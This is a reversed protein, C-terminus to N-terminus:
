DKDHTQILFDTSTLDVLALSVYRSVISYACASTHGKAVMFKNGSRYQDTKSSKINLIFHDDHFTIDNCKLNSVEDFRLFGTYCMLIMALDRIDTLIYSDTYKDCLSVLMDSTVVDKRKM